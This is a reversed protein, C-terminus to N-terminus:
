KNSRWVGDGLKGNSVFTNQDQRHKEPNNIIGPCIKAEHLKRLMEEVELLTTFSRINEQLESLERSIITQQITRNHFDVTAIKQIAVSCKKVVVLFCNVCASDDPLQEGRWSSEPLKITDIDSQLIEDQEENTTITTHELPIPQNEMDSPVLATDEM